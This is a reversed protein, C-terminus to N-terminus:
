SAVGTLAELYRDHTTQKITTTKKIRAPKSLFFSFLECVSINKLLEIEDKKECCTDARFPCWRCEYCQKKKKNKQKKQKGASGYIIGQSLVVVYM